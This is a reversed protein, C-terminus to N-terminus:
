SQHSSDGALDAAQQMLYGAYGGPTRGARRGSTIVEAEDSAVIVAGHNRCRAVLDVDFRLLPDGARVSDGAKVLPHFGEGRLSVTDLGIHIVIELGSAELTMAHAARHVLSVRADCPAVVTDSLPDISVGDGALRQAFAPDPVDDLPVLVGSIPALLTLVAGDLTKARSDTLASATPM